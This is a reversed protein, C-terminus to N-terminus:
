MVVCGKKKKKKEKEPRARGAGERMYRGCYPNSCRWYGDGDRVKTGIHGETMTGSNVTCTM